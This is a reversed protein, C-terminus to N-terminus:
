LVMCTCIIYLLKHKYIYLALNYELINEQINVCISPLCIWIDDMM